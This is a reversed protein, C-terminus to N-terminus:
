NAWLDYVGPGSVLVLVSVSVPFLRYDSMVHNSILFLIYFFSTNLHLCLPLSTYMPQTLFSNFDLKGIMWNKHLHTPGLLLNRSGNKWANRTNDTESISRLTTWPQALDLLTYNGLATMVGFVLFIYSNWSRALILTLTPWPNCQKRTWLLTGCWQKSPTM